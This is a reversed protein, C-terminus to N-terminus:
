LAQQHSPHPHQLSPLSEPKTLPKWKLASPLWQLHSCFLMVGIEEQLFRGWISGTLTWRERKQTHIAQHNHSKCPFCRLAYTLLILWKTASDTHISRPKTDVEQSINHSLDIWKVRHGSNNLIHTADLNCTQWSIFHFVSPPLHAKPLTTLFELM